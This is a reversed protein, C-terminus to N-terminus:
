GHGERGATKQRRRLADVTTKSVDIVRRGSKTKLPGIKTVGGVETAPQRIRVRGKTFDVDEWTLGLCEGLRCGGLLSLLWLAEFRDGRAARIFRKAEPANPARAEKAEHRPVPVARWPNAPLFKGHRIAAEFGSRMVQGVIQISRGGLKKRRLAAYVESVDDPSFRELRQSTVLPKAHLRWALEWAAYTNRAVNPEVEDRLWREFWAGVTDPVTPRISGKGRAREDAIKRLLDGKTQAYIYKRKRKGDGGTGLGISFQWLGDPREVISGEGKARRRKSSSKLM